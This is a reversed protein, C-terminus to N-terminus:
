GSAPIRGRAARRRDRGRGRGAGRRRRRHPQDHHARGWGWSVRPSPPGEDAGTEVRSLASAIGALILDQDDRDHQTLTLWATHGPRGVAWASLLTTKDFGSPAAVVTVTSAGVADDLRGLLRARAPTRAGTEPSVHSVM